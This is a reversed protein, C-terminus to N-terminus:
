ARQKGQQSDVSKDASALPSLEKASASAGERDRISQSPPNFKM